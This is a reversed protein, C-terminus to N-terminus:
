MLDYCILPPVEEMKWRQSGRKGDDFVVYYFSFLIHLWSLVFYVQLDLCQQWESPLPSEVHHEIGINLLKLKKGGVGIDDGHKYNGLNLSWKRKKYVLSLPRICECFWM